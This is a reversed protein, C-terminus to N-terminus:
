DKLFDVKQGKHRRWYLWALVVGVILVMVIKLITEATDLGNMLSDAASLGTFGLIMFFLNRVYFGVFTSMFFTRARIKLVGVVLSLPTSPMVPIARLGLLIWLDKQSGSFHKGFRELHQHTVGFYKGVRPVAVDEFKAGLFYFIWAGATKALTALLCIWLLYVIGMHQAEAITGSLSAVLPSPIPAIIEEVIGGVIVFLPLPVSNAIHQLWTIVADFM